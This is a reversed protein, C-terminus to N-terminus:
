GLSVDIIRRERRSRLPKRTWYMLRLLETEFIRMWMLHILSGRGACFDSKHLWASRVKQTDVM